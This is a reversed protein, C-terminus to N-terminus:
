RHMPSPREKVPHPRKKKYARYIPVLRKVKGEWRWLNVEYINHEVAKRRITSLVGGAAPVTLAGHLLAIKRFWWHRWRISVTLLCLDDYDRWPQGSKPDIEGPEGNWMRIIYHRSFFPLTELHTFM